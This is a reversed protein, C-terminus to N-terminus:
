QNPTRETKWLRSVCAICKAIISITAAAILAIFTMSPKGKQCAQPVLGAAICSSRKASRM